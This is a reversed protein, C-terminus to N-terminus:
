YITFTYIDYNWNILCTKQSSFELRVTLISGLVIWISFVSDLFIWNSNPFINLHFEPFFLVSKMPGCFLQKFYQSITYRGNNWNILCAKQSSLDLRVMLVSHFFVSNLFILISNLFFYFLNWLTRPLLAPSLPRDCMREVSAADLQCMQTQKASESEGNGGCYM